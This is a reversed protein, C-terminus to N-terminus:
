PLQFSTTIQENHENRNNSDGGFLAREHRPETHQNLGRESALALRRHIPTGSLLLLKLFTLGSVWLINDGILQLLECRILLWLSSRLHLLCAVKGTRTNREDRM